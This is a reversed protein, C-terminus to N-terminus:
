GKNILSDELCEWCIEFNDSNLVKLDDTHELFADVSNIELIVDKGKSDFYWTLGEEELVPQVLKLLNKSQFGAESILIRNENNTKDIITFKGSKSATFIVVRSNRKAFILEIVFFTTLLIIYLPKPVDFFSEFVILIAVFGVVGLNIWSLVAGTSYKKM